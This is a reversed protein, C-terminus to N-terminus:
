GIVVNRVRRILNKKKVVGEADESTLENRRGTWIDMDELKM